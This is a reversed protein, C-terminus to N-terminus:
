DVQVKMWSGEKITVGSANAVSQAWRFKVPGATTCKFAFWIHVSNGNASVAFLLPTGGSAYNSESPVYAAGLDGAVAPDIGVASWDFRGAPFTFTARLDALATASECVLHLEGVYSKGAAAAFQFHLDDVLVISNTVTQDAAKRVVLQDIAALIQRVYNYVDALPDADLPNLIAGLPTTNPM